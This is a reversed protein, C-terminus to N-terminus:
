VDYFKKLTPQSDDGSSPPLEEKGKLIRRLASRDITPVGKRKAEDLRKAGPEDGVIVCDTKGSISSTVKGGFSEIMAKLNDRGLKLGFGGGLEPFVGTVVFRKGELRGKVARDIGPRLLELKESATSEQLPATNVFEWTHGQEGNAAPCSLYYKERNNNRNTKVQRVVYTTGCKHCPTSNNFHRKMKRKEDIDKRMDEDFQAITDSWVGGTYPKDSIVSHYFNKVKKSTKIEAPKFNTVTMSNLCKDQSCAVYTSIAWALTLPIQWRTATGVGKFEKSFPQPRIIRRRGNTFHVYPLEDVIKLFTLKEMEELERNIVDRGMNEVHSKIEAVFGSFDYREPREQVPEEEKILEESKKNPTIVALDGCEGPTQVHKNSVERDSDSAQNEADSPSPLRPAGQHSQNEEEVRRQIEEKILHYYGEAPFFGNVVGRSGNALKAKLELNWLLMVQADRKLEINHHVRCDREFFHEQAYNTFVNLDHQIQDSVHQPLSDSNILQRVTMYSLDERGCSKLVKQKYADDLEVTDRSAFEHISDHLKSLEDKNRRDVVHNKSHLETPIIGDKRRPLPSQLAKLTEKHEAVLDPKGERLENLFELLGDNEAQRHVKTLEVTQLNARTWAHSQFAYSGQRGIKEDYGVEKLYENEMLVDYGAPVPPLQYFDGVVVLQMGGFAPIHGLGYESIIDWRLALMTQSMIVDGTGAIEKINKLKESVENYHRIISIMCELVDFLHGDLMSIEDILLAETKRIKERTEPSMMSDFDEYYQGLGFRGWNHITTGGVNISAIGTPATVHIIRDADDFGKVIKKTVWSKGTGAKGTLFPNSGNMALDIAKLQLADGVEEDGEDASPGGAGPATAGVTPTMELDRLLSSEDNAKGELRPRKSSPTAPTSPMEISSWDIDDDFEADAM